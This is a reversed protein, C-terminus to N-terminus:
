SAWTCFKFGALVNIIAYAVGAAPHINKKGDVQEQRIQTLRALWKTDKKEECPGQSLFWNRRKKKSRNKQTQNQRYIARLAWFSFHSM